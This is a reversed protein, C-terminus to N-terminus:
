SVKPTRRSPTVQHHTKILHGGGVLSYQDVTNITVVVVMMMMLIDESAEQRDM